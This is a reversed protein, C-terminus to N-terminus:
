CRFGGKVGIIEHRIPCAKYHCQRKIYGRGDTGISQGEAGRWCVAHMSKVWTRMRPIMIHLILLNATIKVLSMGRNHSSLVGGGGPAGARGGALNFKRNTDAEAWDGPPAPSDIDTDYGVPGDAEGDTWSGFQTRILVLRAEKMWDAASWDRGKFRRKNQKELRAMRDAGLLDRGEAKLADAAIRDQGAVVWYRWYCTEDLVPPALGPPQGLAGSCPTCWLAIVWRPMTIGRNRPPRLLPTEGSPATPSSFSLPLIGGQRGAPLNWSSARAKGCTASADHLM